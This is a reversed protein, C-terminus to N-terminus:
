LRPGLAKLLKAAFASQPSAKAAPQAPPPAPDPERRMRRILAAHVRATNLADAMATHQEGLFSLGLMEIATRLGAPDKLLFMQKYVFAMDVLNRLPSKLGYSQCARAILAADDGWTCCLGKSPAFEQTIATLVEPFPRATRIDETSIGTLQTCRSSIEWRRPRVFYSREQTTELTGLDM